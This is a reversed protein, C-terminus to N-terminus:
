FVQGLLTELSQRYTRTLKVEDGDALQLFYEGRSCPRLEAVHDLNVIASRNARAFRSPDLLDALEQLTRRMLLPRAGTHLRAYDGCGEIWRIGDIPVLLVRGGARVVLRDPHGPPPGITDWAAQAPADLHRRARDLADAFRRDSFPKLLYDLAHVRFAELAHDQYATVFIV